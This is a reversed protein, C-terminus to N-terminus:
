LITVQESLIEDRILPKLTDYEVLDVSRGAAAELRLKLGVFGLLSMKGTIEVLLDIDSDPRDEGRVLSGFLGARTVGSRKLIPVFKRKITQINM